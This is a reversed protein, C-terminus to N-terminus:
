GRRYDRPSVGEERKFCNSFYYPDCFGLRQSIEKVSLRTNRLYQKALLLKQQLFYAYPTRQFAALFLRELQRQSFNLRAAAEAMSFPADPHATIQEDILFRLKQAPGVPKARANFQRRLALLIGYIQACLADQLRDHPLRGRCLNVGEWVAQVVTENAQLYVPSANLGYQSLWHPFLEGTMNFWLIRWPQGRLTEYQYTEGQPLVLMDGASLSHVNGRLALSGQGSLVLIMVSIEANARCVRYTPACQEDGVMSFYLPPLEGSADPPADYYLSFLSNDINSMNEEANGM